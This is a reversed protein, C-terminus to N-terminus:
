KVSKQQKKESRKLLWLVIGLFVLALVFFPKGGQRHLSSSLIDKNVYCGLLSLTAIRMGNKFITIPVACICLLVRKWGTKLFIRGAIIATIILSIGSNIGSCEKAVEISLGELHFTFGDRIIPIGTIKFLLSTTAASFRQFFSVIHELLIQPIPIIIFLLLFPFPTNRICSLGFFSIFGGTLCLLSSLTMVSLFDNEGLQTVYRKAFLYLIVGILTLVIGTVPNYTINKFIKKRDIFIFYGSILPILLVHSYSLGHTSLDLLDKVPSFYVLVVICNFLLFFIIRIKNHTEM